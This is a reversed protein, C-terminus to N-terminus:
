HDVYIGPYFTWKSYKQLLIGSTYLSGGSEYLAMGLGGVTNWISQLHELINDLGTKGAGNDTTFLVSDNVVHKCIFVYRVSSWNM